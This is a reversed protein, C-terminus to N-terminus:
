IYYCKHYLDEATEVVGNIKISNTYNTIEKLIFDRAFNCAFHGDLVGFLNFCPIASISTKVIYADQNKKNRWISKRKSSIM